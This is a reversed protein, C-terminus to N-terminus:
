KLERREIMRVPYEPMNLRYDKIEQRANKYADSESKDWAGVDEWGVGTRQQIVFLYVYKTAKM